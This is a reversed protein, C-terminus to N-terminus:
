EAHPDSIAADDAIIDKGPNLLNHPDFVGKIAAMWDLADGHEQRLFRRKVVGIGHEGSATGGVSLAYAVLRASYDHAAQPADPPTALLVHINGDGVHGLIGGDLRMERLLDQAFGVLGVLQSLPVATDTITYQCGPFQSVMAWYTKHRAEWIQENEDRTRAVEVTRAGHSTVIEHALATEAAMAEATAAHFEILLTPQEPYDRGLSRNVARLSAGDLLELRAVPLANAMIAYAAQAVEAVDTFVVRLTHVHEPVPHLRLTLKTIIGLTGGSGIFLDKLDYGSSSKRVARGLTLVQGNALVVELALVNHHMGGYAVTTTGSANTAAMGGLSADAGPDVPFFLGTHRLAANLALRTLGPEVEVLFDEPALRVVRRMRSLDLSIAPGQPVVHGEFSTGAGFAIVPIRAEAAQALTVQVDAVSEAFVVALPATGATENADHGHAAIVYPNRDLREGLRAALADLLTQETPTLALDAM